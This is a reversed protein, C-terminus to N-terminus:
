LKWIGFQRCISFRSHASGWSWNRGHRRWGFSLFGIFFPFSLFIPILLVGGHCAGADGGSVSNGVFSTNRITTLSVLSISMGGGKRLSTLGGGVRNEVFQCSDIEVDAPGEINVAGGKLFARNNSFVVRLVLIEGFDPSQISFAGGSREAVNADFISDSINVDCLM